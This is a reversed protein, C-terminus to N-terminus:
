APLVGLLDLVLGIPVAAVVGLVAGGVCYHPERPCYRLRKRLLWPFIAGAVILTALYLFTPEGFVIALFTPAFGLTFSHVEDYELHRAWKRPDVYDTGELGGRDDPACSSSDPEDQVDDVGAFLSDEDRSM